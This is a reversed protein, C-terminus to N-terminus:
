EREGGWVMRERGKESEEQVIRERERRGPSNERRRPGNAGERDILVRSRKMSIMSDRCHLFLGNPGDPRCRGCDWGPGIGMDRCM